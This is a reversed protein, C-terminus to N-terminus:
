DKLTALYAVVDEIQQATLITKGQFNKAVRVLGDVRYYSPMITDPNLRAADVLRLRLQGPTSRSGAGALSPALNGQFREEPFSGSHCLLCLGVTRNAVIARGRAVDGPQGTLSQPISDQQAWAATPLLLLAALSRWM